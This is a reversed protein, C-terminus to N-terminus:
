KENRKSNRIYVSIEKLIKTTEVRYKAQETAAATILKMFETQEPNRGQLIQKYEEVKKSQEEFKGQLVGMAKNIENLQTQHSTILQSKEESLKKTKDQEIALADKLTVILDDKAKVGGSKFQVVVWGVSAAFVGLGALGGFINLGEM